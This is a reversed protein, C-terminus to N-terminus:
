PQSRYPNTPLRLGRDHWEHEPILLAVAEAGEGWAQEKAQRLEEAHWNNFEERANQQVLPIDVPDTVQDWAITYLQRVTETTPTQSM